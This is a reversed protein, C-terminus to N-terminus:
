NNKFFAAEYKALLRSRIIPKLTLSKSTLIYKEGAEIARDRRRDDYIRMRKARKDPDNLDRLFGTLEELFPFPNFM